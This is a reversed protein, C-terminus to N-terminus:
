GYLVKGKKLIEEIFMSRIKQAYEFEEPTYVVVDIPLDIKDFLLGGVERSRETHSKETKKVIFIDLDSGLQWKGSAASGFLIIKQPQYKQLATVIDRLIRKPFKVM